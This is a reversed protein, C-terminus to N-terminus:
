AKAEIRLRTLFVSLYSLLGHSIRPDLIKFIVDVVIFSILCSRDASRTRQMALSLSVHDFFIANNRISFYWVRSYIVKAFNISSLTPKSFCCRESVM